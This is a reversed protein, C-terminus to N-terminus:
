NLEKQLNTEYDTCRFTGNQPQFKMTSSCPYGLEEFRAKVHMLTADTQRVGDDVFKDRHIVFGQDVRNNWHQSGSIAYLDPPYKRAQYEPKAPHAIIQIHIRLDRAAAIFEDLCRGIWDTETGERRDYDPEVKNWPDLLIARCGHRIAATEINSLLWKMTPRDDGTGIFRFRERIYNDASEKEGDTMNAETKQHHFQRLNRRLFPKYRTEASFIAVPVHYDRAVNHWVQQFLHSKGHGPYGTVASVMTPSIQMKSEIEPFGLKWLELPPPEPLEDLTYIGECPWPQPATKLYGTLNDKGHTTLFENADKVEGWEIFWCRVPGLISLLHERLARGPGDNDTALVFKEVRSFGHSIADYLWQYRKEGVDSGEPPAGNPVSIVANIPIGAEVLSAADLEGEVIWLTKPQDALVHHINYGQSAGGKQQTWNKDVVDRAKWNVVRGEADFYNFVLAPKESGSFNKCSAVVGLGKLTDRSIGRATTFNTVATKLDTETAAPQGTAFGPQGLM